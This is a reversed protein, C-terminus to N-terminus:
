APKDTSRVNRVHAKLALVRAQAIAQPIRQRNDISSAIGAADVKRYVEALEALYVAQPYDRLELGTRGRADAECATLFQEFRKPKRIVDLKAFLKALTSPKLELAKHTHTHYRAVLVALQRYDRPIRLRQCFKETLMASDDEHGAHHPWKDVPTLAKGFDHCLAAFRTTSDASLLCAQQLVLLTHLGTDIEPHWKAPQPVGFLADLEPLIAKLAGCDRLAEFFVRPLSTELAHKIEQWVREVVLADAEGNDVMTRMLECTSAAIRFGRDHFRALFRAIRLLRVPDEVFAPSVHRLRRANIDRQGGFPDVLRGDADRAIANITLDRRQLDQELTVAPDTNFSFGAYGRATKRETRALAYEEHSDPHLFVPFDKGVPKFGADLMAQPSSGVVVWDRDKVPLGLLEDRVAGGVM